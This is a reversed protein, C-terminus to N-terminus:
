FLFLIIRFSNIMIVYDLWFVFQKLLIYVDFFEVIVITDLDLRGLSYM